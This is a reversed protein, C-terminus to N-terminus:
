SKTVTLTILRGNYEITVSRKEIDRVTARDVTDGTTVSQGNIFAIPKAPNFIIGNLHWGGESHSAQTTTVPARELRFPDGGWAKAQEAEVDILRPDTATSATVVPQLLEEAVDDQVEITRTGSSPFNYVAWIVAVPLTLYVLLKRTRATM